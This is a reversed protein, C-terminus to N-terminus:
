SLKLRTGNKETYYKSDWYKRQSSLMKKWWKPAHFSWYGIRYGLLKIFTNVLAYPVLLPRVIFVERLLATFYEKGRSEAQGVLEQVWPNEARVYGTDFYRKFEELLSYPHSHQVMAEAVYAIKHGKHLMRATALYDESVLTQRFGGIDDLASNLYAACSDSNFFTYIGYKASDEIGRLHSKEQYNFQRPFAEFIDATIRPIQRAYSLSGKGLVIPEILKEILYNDIPMADQTMFIVIDANTLKRGMERTAGHNFQASTISHVIFGNQKAINVTQDNSGSDVVLKYDIQVTQEGLRKVLVSFDAGANLTPIILCLKM